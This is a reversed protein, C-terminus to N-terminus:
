GGDSLTVFGPRQAGSRPGPTVSHGPSKSIGGQGSAAAFPINWYEDDSDARTEPPPPAPKKPEPKQSQPKPPRAAKTAETSRPRRTVPKPERRRQAPPEEATPTTEAERPPPLAATAAARKRRKKPKPREDAPTAALITRWALRGLLRASILLVAALVPGTAFATLFPARLAGYAVAALYGAWLAGALAYFTLWAWAIQFLSRFVPWTIPVWPSDAELSSLLVIPFLVVAAAPGVAWHAGATHRLLLTIGYSIAGVLAAQYVLYILEVMWERFSPDPWEAIRRSGAATETIVPLCCAAAYSISWFTIWITPLMLFGLGVFGARSRSQSAELFLTAAGAWTLSLATCGIALFVWRMLTGSQWPFNFVDSFFTWRPPPDPDDRRIEAMVDFPTRYSSEVADPQPRDEAEDDRGRRPKKRVAAADGLAPVAVPQYCHPCLMTRPKPELLPNLRMGCRESRVTGQPGAAPKPEEPAAALQYPEVNDLKAKPKQAEKALVEALSPVRAVTYCDPCKVTGAEKRVPPHMRARCVRCIVLVYEPHDSPSHSM